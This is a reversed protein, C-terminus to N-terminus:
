SITSGIPLSAVDRAPPLAIHVPRNIWNITCTTTVRIGGVTEVVHYKRILPGPGIWITFHVDGNLLSAAEALAVQLSSPSLNDALQLAQAPTFSGRYGTTRVGDIVQHGVVTLRTSALFLRAQTMPSANAASRLLPGLTSGLDSVPVGVWPKPANPILTGAKLYIENATIVETFSQSRGAADIQLQESARLPVRRVLFVGAITVPQQLGFNQYISASFSQADATQREATIAELTPGQATSTSQSASASALPSGAPVPSDLGKNSPMEVLSCGSALIAVAVMVAVSASRGLQRPRIATSAGQVEVNTRM